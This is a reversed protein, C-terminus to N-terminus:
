IRFSLWVQKTISSSSTSSISLGYISLINEREKGKRKRQDMALLSGHTGKAEVEVVVAPVAPAASLIGISVFDDDGATDDGSKVFGRWPMRWGEDAVVVVVVVM